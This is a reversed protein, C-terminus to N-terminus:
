SPITFAFETGMGPKSNVEINGNCKEILDKCFLLGMGTGSENNTGTISDMRSKFLKSLQEPSMGIGHDRIKVVARDGDQLASIDIKGDSHSFKIANTLLNRVVIRISNPDATATLNEGIDTVLHIGKKRAEDRHKDVENVVLESLAFPKLTIDFSEMQSNVWFLLTDLFDSTYDLQKLVAPLMELMEQHTITSDKLLYFLGKLTSLPARLDHALIAILRDKLHNLENLKSAQEDLDTKQQLVETNKLELKANISQQQKKQRYYIWIISLMAVIIILFIAIVMRQRQSRQLYLLEREHQRQKLQREKLAFTLEFNYSASKEVSENSKLQDKISIYENLYKYAEDGNGLAVLAKSMQLAASAKVALNGLKVSLQQGELAYNYAKQYEHQQNYLNALGVLAYAQNYVIKYKRAIQLSTDIYSDARKFDKKAAYALGLDTYVSSLGDKDNQTNVIKNATNLYRIAGDYDSQALLIEGINQNITGLAQINDTGQLLNLAKKFHTLANPYVEMNQLVAGINNYLNGSPLTYHNKIAIFLGKYYYDLAKSLEGRSFYVNGLGKYLNTQLLENGSGKNLNLALNLYKLALQYDALLTYMSGYSHYCAILGTVDNQKKFISVAEALQQQAESTRGKFYDVHASQLLGNALGKEYNLKRSLAISKQAYYYASDPVSQFYHESLLNLRNVTLENATVKDKAEKGLLNLLSDVTNIQPAAYSAFHVLVLLLVFLRKM